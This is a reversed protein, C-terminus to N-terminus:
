FDQKKLLFSSWHCYTDSEMMVQITKEVTIEKPAMFNEPVMKTVTQPVMERVPVMRVRPVMVTHEQPIMRQM